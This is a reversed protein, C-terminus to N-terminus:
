GFYVVSGMGVMTLVLEFYRSSLKNHSRGGLWVSFPTVSVISHGTIRSDYISKSASRVETVGLSQPLSSLTRLERSAPGLSDRSYDNFHNVFQDHCDLYIIPAM